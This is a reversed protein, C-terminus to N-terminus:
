AKDRYLTVSQARLEMADNEVALDAFNLLVCCRRAKWYSGRCQIDVASCEARKRNHCQRSGEDCQEHRCSFTEGERRQIDVLQLTKRVSARRMHM